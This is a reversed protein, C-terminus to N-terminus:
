MAYHSCNFWPCSITIAQNWMKISFLFNLKVRIIINCQICISDCLSCLRQRKKIWVRNVELAEAKLEFGNSHQQKKKACEFDKTDCNKLYVITNRKMNNNKAMFRYIRVVCIAGLNVNCCQSQSQFKCKIGCFHYSTRERSYVFMSNILHIICRIACCLHAWECVSIWMRPNWNFAARWHEEFVQHLQQKSGCVIWLVRVVNELFLGFRYLVWRFVVVFHAVHLVIKRNVGCISTDICHCFKEIQVSVFKSSKGRHSIIKAVINWKRSIVKWLKKPECGISVLCLFLNSARCFRVFFKLVCVCKLEM